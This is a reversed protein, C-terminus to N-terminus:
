IMKYQFAVDGESVCWDAIKERIDYATSPTAVLPATADDDESDSNNETLVEPSKELRLFNHLICCALIINNITEPLAHIRILLIRWTSAMIGFANEVIRRARSLRFCFVFINM